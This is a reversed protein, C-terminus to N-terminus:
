GIEGKEEVPKGDRDVRERESELGGTRGRCEFKAGRVRLERRRTAGAKFLQIYSPKAAM